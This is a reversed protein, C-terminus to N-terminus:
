RERNLAAWLHARLEPLLAEISIKQQTWIELAAIGQFILMDLGNMVTAGAREAKELLKTKLPNYILDYVVIGAPISADDDLPSASANPYMGVSTTNVLLAADPLAAGLNEQNLCAGNIAKFSLKDRFFQALAVAKEVTRNLLTIRGVRRSILAYLIARAAGGAGLVVVPRQEIACHLPGLSRVFGEIDTNYGTARDNEFHVTNVANLIQAEPSLRDLCALIREKHPITVNIGRFGLTKFSNFYEQIRTAPVRFSHYCFNLHLHELVFQHLAPSLSHEIPDGIVGLLGTQHDPM